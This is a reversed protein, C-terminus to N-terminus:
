PTVVGATVTLSAAVHFPPLLPYVKITGATVITTGQELQVDMVPKALSAVYEVGEVQDIISILENVRVAADWGWNSPSLYQNIAESVATTVALDGYDDKVKVITTVDVALITPDIVRVILNAAARTTLDAQLATKESTTLAGDEGYVIVTVYGADDGPNNNGTADWNDITNARYVLTNELAAQTFHDAIVLTDALRQLRQIGRAAFQEDTEPLAGGQVASATIASEVGDLSNVVEATTGADIGNATNTYETSQAVVTGTTNPSSVVLDTTTYFSMYETDAIYDSSNTAIAVETGAPVVYGTDDQMTFTVNVFPTSGPDRVVGYLSLLVYVLNSPIRNLSFLMEGIEVALAEILMVEINTADPEWDPLRAQLTTLAATYIDTPSKDYLALDTYPTYDPSITM